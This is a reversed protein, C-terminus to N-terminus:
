KNKGEEIGKEIRELKDKSEPTVTGMMVPNPMFQQMNDVDKISDKVIAILKHELREVYKSDLSTSSRELASSVDESTDQEKMYKGFAARLDASNQGMEILSAQKQAIRNLFKADASASQESFATSCYVAVVLIVVIKNKVIKYM